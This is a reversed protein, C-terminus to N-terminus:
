ADNEHLFRLVWRGVVQEDTPLHLTRMAGEYVDPPYQERRREILTTTYARRHEPHGQMSIAHPSYQVFDFPCFANGCLVEAGPPLAVVQDRHTVLLRITPQEPQMWPRKQEVRSLATGIGWGKSSREVRGGLIEALLQHGFCVGVMKRRADYAARVFQRLPGIWPDPDFVSSASGTILYADCSEPGNPLKGAVTNYRTFDINGCPDGGSLWMRFMDAYTGFEGQLEDAVVGTDLIGVKM